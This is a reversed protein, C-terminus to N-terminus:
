ASFLVTILPALILLETSEPSPPPPLSPIPVTPIPYIFLPSKARPIVRGVGLGPTARDAWGATQAQLSGLWRPGRRAYRLPAM